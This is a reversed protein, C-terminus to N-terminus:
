KVEQHRPFSSAEAPEAANVPRERNHGRQTETINRKLGIQAAQKGNDDQQATRQEHQDQKGEGKDLEEIRRPHLRLCGGQRRPLQSATHRTM